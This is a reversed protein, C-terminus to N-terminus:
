VYGFGEEYIDFFVEKKVKLPSNFNFKGYGHRELVEQVQEYSLAKTFLETHSFKLVKIDVDKEGKRLHEIDRWEYIGYHKFQRFLEKAKGTHVETLYSCGVVMMSHVGGKKRKCVYWLIRGPAKETLPKCSRYYVNEYYWLKMPDAGFIDESSIANDFLQGAWVDHIPIIYTPIELDRIKLPYYKLELRVLEETSKIGPAVDNMMVIENRISKVFVEENSLFGLRLLIVRQEQTLLREKLVMQKRRAVVCEQLCNTVIQCFLSSCLPGDQIRLFHLTRMQGDDSWGYFAVDMGQSNMTWLEGGCNVCENVVNEFAAKREHIGTYLFRDITSQLGVANLKSVSHNRVARLLSPSYEERHLLQDIELLFEQPTYIQIEYKSEIDEKKKIVEADYTIFYPIGAAICSAVQKRDSEANDTKGPLIRMLANAIRKQDENDFMAETYASRVYRRTQEARAMDNDRLIENFVEPSYCLETEEVLWDQLLCRPDEKPSMHYGRDRLKAIINLDMMARVKTSAEYIESFLNKVHFDYWWTVLYNEEYSRSRYEGHAIFGYRQWMASANKYDKRCNLVIGITGRGHAWERLTNLLRTSVGKGRYPEDVALHVIVVKSNRDTMRFMLYGMLVDEESVTILHRVRAYDDFGGEPMFGLTAKYKTGLRKVAPYLKHNWDIFEILM